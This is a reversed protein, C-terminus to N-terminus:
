NKSDQSLREVETKRHIVRAFRPLHIFFLMQAVHLGVDLVGFVGSAYILGRKRVHTHLFVYM